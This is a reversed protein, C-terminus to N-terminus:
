KPYPSGSLPAFARYLQGALRVRALEHSFTLTSFALRATGCPFVLECTERNRHDALWRAFEKSSHQQGAISTERLM